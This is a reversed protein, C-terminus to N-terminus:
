KGTRWHLPTTSGEEALDETTVQLGETKLNSKKGLDVETVDVNVGSARLIFLIVM